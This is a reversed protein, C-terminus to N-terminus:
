RFGGALEAKLQTLLQTIALGNWRSNKNDQL